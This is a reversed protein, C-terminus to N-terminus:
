QSVTTHRSIVAERFLYVQRKPETAQLLIRKFEKMFLEGRERSSFTAKQWTTIISLAGNATAANLTFASSTVSASQSFIADQVKFTVVPQQESSSSSSSTSSSSSSPQDWSKGINSLKLTALRGHPEQAVQSQLFDEWGGPRKPLYELLGAHELMHRVGKETTTGKVVQNRYTQTVNWFESELLIQIDKTILESTYSGQDSPDITPSILARLSVPTAFSLKDKTTTPKMNEGEGEVQSLFISKIAFNAATFLISHVTTQRIKSTQIIQLTEEQTFFCGEVQTENPVNLNADFEGAWYKSELSKKVFAPLLLGLAAEKLLMPLPPQCNVRMEIAPPLPDNPATVVTPLRTNEASTSATAATVAAAAAQINLQQVLQETLSMASRGDGIVHQFNYLLYFSDDDTIHVLVIRWLPIEHNLFDFPTTHEDELVQRIENHRQITTVRVLRSLDIAPLRLFTPKASLHDGVVVSLAPHRQILWSLPGTLIELWQTKDKPLQTTASQLQLRTGVVVNYYIGANARALSYRELNHVERVPELPVSSSPM